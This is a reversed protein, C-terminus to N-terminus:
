RLTGAPLERAGGRALRQQKASGPVAGVIVGEATRYHRLGGGPADGAGPAAEGARKEADAARKEAARAHGAAARAREGAARAQAAAEGARKEAEAARQEAARAQEEATRAREGAAELLGPHLGAAGLCWTCPETGAAAHAELGGATGCTRPHLRVGEGPM